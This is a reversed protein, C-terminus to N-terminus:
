NNSVVVLASIRQTITGSTGVITYDYIGQATDTDTKVVMSASQPATGTIKVPNGKLSISPQHPAPSPLVQTATLAVDGVFGEKPTVTITVENNTTQGATINLRSDSLAFIPGNAEVTLATSGSGSFYTSDGSFAAVLSDAGVPLANSPVNFSVSGDSAPKTASKYSGCSLTVTGTTSIPFGGERTLYVQVKISQDDQFIAQSPIVSIFPFQKAKSETVTVYATGPLYNSDGSYSATLTVTSDSPVATVQLSFTAEGNTLPTAPLWIGLNPNNMTVEGTPVPKGAKGAVNVTLNFPFSTITANKPTVSIAPRITGTPEVDVTIIIEGNAYFQDGSYNVMFSQEGLSLSNAPATVIASGNKVTASPSVYVSPGLASVYVTGTPAPLGSVTSLHVPVNWAQNVKVTRPYNVAEIDTAAGDVPLYITPSHRSPAYNSDGDYTASIQLNGAPLRTTTWAVSGTTRVGLSGAKAEISASGIPQTTQNWFTVKGTPAAGFSDLPLFSASLTIQTGAIIGGTDLNFSPSGLATVAPLIQFSKPSSTSPKFSQDGSYAASLSYAGAPITASQLEAIGDSAIPVTALPSSGNLFAITGTAPGNPNALSSSNGYPQADIVSVFGYHPTSSPKMTAPDYFGRITLATTSSEPAVTVPIANSDSAAFASAGGYHATLMYSGGPLNDIAGKASGATLATAGLSENNPQSAASLNDVLAVAGDPTGSQSTVEVAFDTKAGHTLHVASVGGDLTLKSTTPSLAASSWASLLAAADVSGLGAADSYVGGSNYGTMFYDGLTDPACDASQEKCAVSNNGTTVPHFASSSSHALSYLIPAAQGIRGGTKEDVLALIGAFVPAAASTGGVGTLNFKNGKAPTGACDVIPNGTATDYEQDTCLGWAAGYLGNGAFFSVDPLNRGHTDPAFGAQWPPLPYGSVCHGSAQTACASVGGGAALINGWSQNDGITTNDNQFTSDNWPREPIYSLAGRHYPLTNSVDVYELFSPYFNSYLVDFDTGGVAIDYPTSALGNVALGDTAESEAGPNDCGASGSDGTAVTVSIGQAAAQQWLHNIFLNGSAGQQLECGSFSVNLVSVQNDDLARAVALLVGPEVYTNAATYLIVSAGPAVAGAVQTDLYAEIADGNEGPDNGDAVVQTPNAPLGFTARYNANQTLDINSDGAIGISVGAGSYAAGKFGANYLNPLDYITAADAPGLFISYGAGLSGFTYSPEIRGTNPNYIGSPARAFQARPFFDSLASFGAVVPTLAAPIRPDAANAWHQQGDVVYKHLPAHFANKVQGATGSFEIAMHSRDAKRISFGHSRLWTEIAAIDSDAVGFRKGFEDPTLWHRYAESDPTQLAQLYTELAAEQAASRRLVLLMRDLPLSDPAPGRDYRPQALPHTNGALTVLSSERIPQVIRPPNQIEAPAQATAPSALQFCPPVLCLLWASLRLCLKASGRM